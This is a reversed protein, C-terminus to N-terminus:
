GLRATAREDYRALADRDVLSDVLARQATTLALPREQRHRWEAGRDRLTRGVSIMPELGLWRLMAHCATVSGDFLRECRVPFLRDPGIQDSLADAAGFSENWHRCGLELGNSDSWGEDDPDDARAQFSVAVRYPDRHIFVFRSRPFREAIACLVAADPPLLKDGSYVLHGKTYRTLSTEYHRAFKPPIQNTDTPRFDFFREQEFHEPGLLTVDGTHRMERVLYKYREMGIAIAAHSQLLRTLLSTGSRECGVVFLHQDPM